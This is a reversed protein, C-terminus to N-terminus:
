RRRCDAAARWNRPEASFALVFARQADLPGSLDDGFASHVLTAGDQRALASAGALAAEAPSFLRFAAGDAAVTALYLDEGPAEAHAVAVVYGGNALRHLAAPEAQSNDPALLLYQAGGNRSLRVLRADDARPASATACVYAGPKAAAVDGGDLAFPEGRTSLCGCIPFALLPVLLARLLM